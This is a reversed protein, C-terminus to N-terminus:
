AVGLSNRLREDGCSKVVRIAQVAQEVIARHVRLCSVGVPVRQKVLSSSLAIQSCCLAYDLTSHKPM